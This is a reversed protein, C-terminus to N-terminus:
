AAERTAPVLMASVADCEDALARLTAPATRPGTHNAVEGELMWLRLSLRGLLDAAHIAADPAM